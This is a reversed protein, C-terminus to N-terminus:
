ARWPRRGLVSFASKAGRASSRSHPARRARGCRVRLTRGALSTASAYGKLARQPRGRNISNATCTLLTGVLLKRCHAACDVGISDAQTGSGAAGLALDLNSGRRRRRVTRAFGAGSAWISVGDIREAATRDVRRARSWSTLHSAATSALRKLPPDDDDNQNNHADNESPYEDYRTSPCIILVPAYLELCGFNKNVGSVFASTVSFRLLSDPVLSKTKHIHTGGPWVHRFCLLLLFGSCTQSGIAGPLFAECRFRRDLFLVAHPLQCFDAECRDPDFLRDLLFLQLLLLSFLPLDICLLRYVVRMTDECCKPSGLGGVCCLTHVGVDDFSPAALPCFSIGFRLLALHLLCFFVSLCVLRCVSSLGGSSGGGGGCSGGSCLRCPLLRRFRRSCLFIGRPLLFCLRSLGPNVLSKSTLLLCSELCFRPNCRGLLSLPDLALLFLLVLAGIERSARAGDTLAIAFLRDLHISFTLASHRPNRSHALCGDRCRFLHYNSGWLCVHDLFFKSERRRLVYRDFYVHRCM